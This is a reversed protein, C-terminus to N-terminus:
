LGTVQSTDLDDIVVTLPVEGAVRAVARRVQADIEHVTPGWTGVVHVEVSSTGDDRVAVGVVRRGPLYTAVQDSLSAVAPCDLVARAIADPDPGNM